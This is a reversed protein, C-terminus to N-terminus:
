LLNRQRAKTFTKWLCTFVTFSTKRRVLDKLDVVVELSVAQVELYNALCTRSSSHLNTVHIVHTRQKRVHPDMGGMGGQESLGAEGRADYISRKEPDSLIEYSLFFEYPSKRISMTVFIYSQRM